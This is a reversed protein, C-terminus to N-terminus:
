LKCFMESDNRCPPPCTTNLANTPSECYHAGTESFKVLMSGPCLGDHFPRLAVWSAFTYEEDVSFSEREEVSECACVKELSGRSQFADGYSNYFYGQSNKYCGSPFQSSYSLVSVQHSITMQNLVDNNKNRRM